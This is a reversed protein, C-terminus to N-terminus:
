KETGNDKPSNGVKHLLDKFLQGFPEVQASVALATPDFDTLECLMHINKDSAGLLYFKDGAQVVILSCGPSVPVRDVIKIHRGATTKSMRGAYWRSAYYTLAVVAVMVVLSGVLTMGDYFSQVNTGM